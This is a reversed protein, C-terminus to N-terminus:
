VFQEIIMYKPVVVTLNVYTVICVYMYKLILKKGNIKNYSYACNKYHNLVLILEHHRLTLFGPSSEGPGEPEPSRLLGCTLCVAPRSWLPQGAPSHGCSGTGAPQRFSPPGGEGTSARGQAAPKDRTLSGM